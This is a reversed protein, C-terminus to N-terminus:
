SDVTQVKRSLAAAREDDHNARYALIGARFIADKQGDPNNPDYQNIFTDCPFDGCIGCHSASKEKKCFYLQCKGWFPEGKAQICGPCQPNNKGSFFDCDNCIIGCGAFILDDNMSCYLTSSSSITEERNQHSM